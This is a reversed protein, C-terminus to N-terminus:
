RRAAPRSQAAPRQHRREALRLPLGRRLDAPDVGNVTDTGGHNIKAQTFQLGSAVQVGPVKNAADVAAAPVSGFNQGQIILDSTISRDIAGLFSDKFGNVFTAVFVILAVGIMLAAATVATRGPNRATNERALRGSTPSSPDWPWERPRRPWCSPPWHQRRDRARDAAGILGGTSASAGTLIACVILLTIAGVWVCGLTLAYGIAACCGDSCPSATACGDWSGGSGCCCSSCRDGAGGGAPSILIRSLMAVGLFAIVAGAAM